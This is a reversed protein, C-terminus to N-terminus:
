FFNVATKDFDIFGRQNAAQVPKKSEQRKASISASPHSGFDAPTANHDPTEHDMQETM